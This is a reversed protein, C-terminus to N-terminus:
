ISFPFNLGCCLSVMNDYCYQLHFLFVSSDACCHIPPHCIFVATYISSVHPPQIFSCNKFPLFSSAVVALINFSNIARFSVLSTFLSCTKTKAWLTSACLACFGTCFLPLLSKRSLFLCVSVLDLNFCIHTYFLLFQYPVTLITTCFVQYFCHGAYPFFLCCIHSCSGSFDTHLLLCLCLNFWLDGCLFLAM